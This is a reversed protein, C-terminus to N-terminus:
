RIQLDLEALYLLMEEDDAACLYRGVCATAPSPGRRIGEDLDGEIRSYVRQRRQQGNKQMATGLRQVRREAPVM